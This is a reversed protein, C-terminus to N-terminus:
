KFVYIILFNGYFDEPIWCGMGLNYDPGDHLEEPCDCVGDIKFNWMEGEESTVRPWYQLNKEKKILLFSVSHKPDQM